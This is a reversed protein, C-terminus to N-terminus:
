EKWKRERWTNDGKKGTQVSRQMGRVEGRRSIGIKKPQRQLVEFSIYESRSVHCVYLYSILLESRIHENEM